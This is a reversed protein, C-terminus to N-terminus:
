KKMPKNSLTITLEPQGNSDDGLELAQHTHFGIDKKTRALKLFYRGLHEFGEQNAWLTIGGHDNVEFKYWELNKLGEYTDEFSIGSPGDDTLELEVKIKKTM